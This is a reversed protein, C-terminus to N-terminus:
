LLMIKDAKVFATAVRKKFDEDTEIRLSIEPGMERSGLPIAQSARGM